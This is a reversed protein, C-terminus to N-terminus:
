TSQDDSVQIELSSSVSAPVFAIARRGKDDVAPVLCEPDQELPAM